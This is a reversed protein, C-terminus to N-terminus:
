EQGRALREFRPNGRLRDFNPDVRLWGPTFRYPAKLLRELADIAPEQNGLRTHIFALYKLPTGGIDSAEKEIPALAM